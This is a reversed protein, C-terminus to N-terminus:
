KSEQFLDLVDSRRVYVKKKTKSELGRLYYAKLVGDRIYRDFTSKSISLMECVQGPSLYVEEQGKLREDVLLLVRLVESLLGAENTTQSYRGPREKVQDSTKRDGTVQDSSVQDGTVQGRKKAKSFKTRCNASCFRADSRSSKFSTGCVQCVKNHEM